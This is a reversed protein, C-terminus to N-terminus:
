KVATGMIHPTITPVWWISAQFHELSLQDFGASEIVKWTERLLIFLAMFEVSM